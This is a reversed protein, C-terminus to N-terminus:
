SLCVWFFEGNQWCGPCCRAHPLCVNVHALELMEGGNTLGSRKRCRRELSVDMLRNQTPLHLRQFLPESEAEIEACASPDLECVFSAHKFAICAVHGVPM